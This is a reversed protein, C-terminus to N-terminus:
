KAAEAAQARSAAAPVCAAAAVLKGDLRVVVYSGLRSIELLAREGAEASGSAVEAGACSIACTVTRSGKTGAIRVQVADNEAGPEADLLVSFAFDQQALISGLPLDISYNGFYDGKTWWTNALRKKDEDTPSQLTSIAAVWPHARSAWAAMEFHRRVDTFEKVIHARRPPPLFQVQLGDFDCTGRSLLGIKGAAAAPVFAEVTASGCRALVWGEDVTLELQQWGRSLKAPTAAVPLWQKSQADYRLVQLMWGASRALAAAVPGNPWCAVVGALRCRPSLRIRASVTYRRWLFDGAVALNTSSSAARMVRRHALWKGRVTKYKGPEAVSFDDTFAEFGRVQADDFFAGQKGEALMGVQGHGLADTRAELLKRGDVWCTLLGDSFALSLRYWLGPMYGGAKEALVRDKGGQVAILQIKDADEGAALKSTWRCALYNDPDQYCVVLGLAGDDSGRVAASIVYDTWFWHGAVALARGDEAGGWFSFPNASKSADMRSAQEDERLARQQFKGRQVEWVGTGADPGRMFDDTLYIEGLPQIQLDALSAGGTCKWGVAGRAGAPRDDYGRCIIKGRCFLYLKWAGRYIAFDIDRGPPVSGSNGIPETRSPSVRYFRASGQLIRLEIGTNAQRDWDFFISLSGTTSAFTGYLCYPAEAPEELWGQQPLTEQPQQALCIAVLCALAAGAAGARAFKYTM